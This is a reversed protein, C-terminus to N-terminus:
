ITTGMKKDMIGIYGLYLGLIVRIYGKSLPSLLRFGLGKSFHNPKTSGRGPPGLAEPLGASPLM